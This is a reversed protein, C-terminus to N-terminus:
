FVVDSAAVCDLGIVESGELLFGEFFGDVTWDGLVIGVCIELSEFGEDLRGNVGLM